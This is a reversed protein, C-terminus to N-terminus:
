TVSWCRKLKSAEVMEKQKLRADITVWFAPFAKWVKKERVTLVGTSKQNSCTGTSFSACLQRESRVFACM